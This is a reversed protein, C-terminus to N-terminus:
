NQWVCTYSYRNCTFKFIAHPPMDIRKSRDYGHKGVHVTIKVIIWFQVFLLNLLYVMISTVLSCTYLVYKVNEIGCNLNVTLTEYYQWEHLWHVDWIREWFRRLKTRFPIIPYFMCVPQHKTDSALRQAILNQMQYLRANNRRMRSLQLIFLM